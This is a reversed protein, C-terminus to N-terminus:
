YASGDPFLAPRWLIFDPWYYFRGSWSKGEYNYAEINWVEAGDPACTDIRDFFYSWWRADLAYGTVYAGAVGKGINHRIWSAAHERAEFDELHKAALPVEGHWRVFSHMRYDISDVFVPELSEAPM